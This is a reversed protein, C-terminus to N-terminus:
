EPLEVNMAKTRAKQENTEHITQPLTRLIEFIKNGYSNGNRQAVNIEYTGFLCKKVNICELGVMLLRLHLRPSHSALQPSSHLTKAETYM